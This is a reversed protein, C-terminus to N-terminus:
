RELCCSGIWTGRPILLCLAVLCSATYAAQGKCAFREWTWWLADGRRSATLLIRVSYHGTGDISIPGAPQVMGYEDLVRFTVSAPDVGSGADM